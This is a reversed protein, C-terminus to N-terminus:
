MRNANALAFSNWDGFGGDRKKKATEVFDLKGVSMNPVFM